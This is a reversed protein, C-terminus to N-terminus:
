TTEGTLKDLITAAEGESRALSSNGTIVDGDYSMGVWRGRGTVDGNRDLAFYMTGKSQVNGDVGRYWGMLAQGDWVTFEGVWDYGGEEVPATREASLNVHRGHHNATVKQIAHRVVGDKYTQWGAWWEGALDLDDDLQGALEELSIALAEAMRVAVSLVPQQEGSEYRAVQRATIGSREALETQSIGLENRRRKIIAPMDM